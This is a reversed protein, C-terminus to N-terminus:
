TMDKAFRKIQIRIREAEILADPVNSPNVGTRNAILRRVASDNLSLHWQRRYEYKKAKQEESLVYKRGHNKNREHYKEPNAERYRKNWERVIQPQNRSLSKDGKTKTYYAQWESKACAKCQNTCGDKSRKDKRFDTLPKELRCYGCAKTQVALTPQASYSDM